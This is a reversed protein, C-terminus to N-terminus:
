KRIEVEKLGHAIMPTLFKYFSEQTVAPSVSASNETYFDTQLCATRFNTVAASSPDHNDLTTNYAFNVLGFNIPGRFSATDADTRWYTCTDVTYTETPKEPNIIDAPIQGTDDTLVIIWRHAVPLNDGRRSNLLLKGALTIAAEQNSYQFRPHIFGSETTYGAELMWLAERVLLTTADAISFNGNNYDALLTHLNTRPTWLAANVPAPVPHEGNITGAACRTAHYHPLDESRELRAATIETQDLDSLVFPDGSFSNTTVVAVRFTEIQSLADYLKIVGHKFNKFPASFCQEAYVAAQSPYHTTFASVTAGSTPSQMLSASNDVILVVDTPALHVTSRGVVDISGLTSGVIPFVRPIYEDSVKISVSSVKYALNVGASARNDNFTVEFAGPTSRDPGLATGVDDLRLVDYWNGASDSVRNNAVFPLSSAAALAVNESLIQVQQRKLLYLTTDVGWGGFAFLLTIVFTMIVLMNGKENRM